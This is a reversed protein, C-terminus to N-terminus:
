KSRRASNMQRARQALEDEMLGHYQQLLGALRALQEAPLRKAAAHDAGYEHHDLINELTDHAKQTLGVHSM